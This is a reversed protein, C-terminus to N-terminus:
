ALKCTIKIFDQMQTVHQKKFLIFFLRIKPYVCKQKSKEGFNDQGIKSTTSSLSQFKGHFFHLILDSNSEEWMSKDPKKKEKFVTELNPLLLFVFRQSIRGFSKPFCCKKASSITVEALPQYVLATFHLSFFVWTHKKDSCFIQEYWLMRRLSKSSALSITNMHVSKVVGLTSVATASDNFMWNNLM